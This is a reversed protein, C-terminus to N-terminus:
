IIMSDADSFPLFVCEIHSNANGPEKFAEFLNLERLRSEDVVIFLVNEHAKDGWLDLQQRAMSQMNSYKVHEDRCWIHACKNLTLPLVHETQFVTCKIEYQQEGIFAHKRANEISDAVKREMKQRSVYDWDIFYAYRASRSCVTDHVEGESSSASEEKETPATSGKSRKSTKVPKKHVCPETNGMRCVSELFVRAAVEMAQRKTRKIARPGTSVDHKDTKLEVSAQWRGDDRAVYRTMDDVTLHRIGQDLLWQELVAIYGM